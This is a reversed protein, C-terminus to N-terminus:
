SRAPAGPGASIPRRPSRRRHFEDDVAEIASSAPPYLPALVDIVRGFEGEDFYFQGLARRILEGHHDATTLRLAMELKKRAGARDNFRLVQAQQEGVPRAGIVPVAGSDASQTQPGEASRAEALEALESPAAETIISSDMQATAQMAGVDLAVTGGAGPLPMDDRGSPEDFRDQELTDLDASDKRGLGKIKNLFSM